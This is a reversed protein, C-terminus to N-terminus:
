LISLSFIEITVSSFISYLSEVPLTMWSGSEFSSEKSLALGAGRGTSRKWCQGV